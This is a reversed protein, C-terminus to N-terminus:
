GYADEAKRRAIEEDPDNGDTLGILKELAERRAKRREETVGVLADRQQVIARRIADSMTCGFTAALQQAAERTKTDLLISTRTSSM